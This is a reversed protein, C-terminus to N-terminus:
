ATASATGNNPASLQATAPVTEYTWTTVTEWSGQQGKQQQQQKRKAAARARRLKIRMMRKAKLRALYAKRQARTGFIPKRFWKKGKKYKKWGILFKRQRRFRRAWRGTWVWVRKGNKRM